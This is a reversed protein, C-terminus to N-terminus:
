LDRNRKGEVKDIVIKLMTVAKWYKDVVEMLRHEGGPAVARSFAILADRKEQPDTIIEGRGTVIASDYHTTFREEIIVPDKYVSFSVTPHAALCDLKKGKVACHLILANAPEDYFYNIPVGYPLGKETVLSLTGLNCSKLVNRAAAETTMRDPRM